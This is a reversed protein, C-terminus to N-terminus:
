ADLPSYREFWEDIYRKWDKRNRGDESQELRELCEERSGEIFIERAGLEKLLREREGSLPYGGIVYANMWRGQRYRVAELLSDRIAFVVANLRKPKIYRECGSLCQWINDIDIMLDGQNMADRVFSTKGSLPPGYVLFVQQRQSMLKEHILNHCRHHVLQINDPNLSITVDNVNEETLYILHHGICDYEKVIVKGCHGCILCGEENLRELKIIRMLKRWEKSQYFTDLTRIVM